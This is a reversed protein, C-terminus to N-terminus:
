GVLICLKRNLLRAKSLINDLSSGCFDMRIVEMGEPLEKVLSPLSMIVVQLSDCNRFNNHKEVTNASNDALELNRIDLAELRRCAAFMQNIEIVGSKSLPQLDLKKLHECGNFMNNLKTVSSIDLNIRLDELSRCLYFMTSMYEVKSTDWGSIDLHKIRIMNSFIRHMDRVESTNFKDIKLSMMECSGNFMDQMFRVNSTDWSSLDLEKLTSNYFAGSMDIVNRTDIGSVDITDLNLNMFSNKLSIVPIGKFVPGCILKNKCKKNKDTFSVNWGVIQETKSEDCPLEVLKYKLRGCLVTDGIKYKCHRM